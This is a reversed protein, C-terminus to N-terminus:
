LLRMAMMKAAAACGSNAVGGDITVLRVMMQTQQLKWEIRIYHGTEKETRHSATASWVQAM